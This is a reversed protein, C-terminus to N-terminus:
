RIFDFRNYHFCPHPNEHIITLNWSFLSLFRLLGCCILLCLMEEKTTIQKLYLITVFRFTLFILIVGTSPISSVSKYHSYICCPVM